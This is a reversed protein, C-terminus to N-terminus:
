GRGSKVTKAETSASVRLGCGSVRRRSRLQRRFRPGATGVPGSTPVIPSLPDTLAGTGLGDGAAGRVSRVRRERGGLGEGHRQGGGAVQGVGPDARRGIQGVGQAPRQQQLALGADALGRQGRRQGLDPARLQDPQLAVLADVRRLREVVPVERALDQMQARDLRDGGARRRVRDPPRRTPATCRATGARGASGPPAACGLDTSSISSISRASSSNSANRSSTSDSNATVIGSSPLIAASRLRRQDHEGGVAGPLHVVRELPAAEIVPDLMRRELALHRDQAGPQGLDGAAQRGLDGGRDAPQAGGVQQLRRADGFRQVPRPRQVRKPRSWRSASAAARVRPATSLYRSSM